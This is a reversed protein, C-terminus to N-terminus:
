KGEKPPLETTNKKTEVSAQSTKTLQSGTLLALTTAVMVGFTQDYRRGVEPCNKIGGSQMCQTFGYVFICAQVLFITALMKLLFKDRQFEGKFKTM